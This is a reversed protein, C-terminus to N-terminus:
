ADLENKRWHTFAMRQLDCRHMENFLRESGLGHVGNKGRHCPGCLAVIYRHDRRRVKPPIDGIFAMKLPMSMIHHLEIPRAGCCFCPCQAVKDMHKKEAATPKDTPRPKIRKHPRVKPLM